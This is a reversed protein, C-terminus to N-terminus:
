TSRPQWEGVTAHYADFRNSTLSQVAGTTIIMSYPSTTLGGAHGASDYWNLVYVGQNTISFTQSLAYQSENGIDVFQQGEEPLPWAGGTDGNFIDGSPGSWGWSTPTGQQFTNNAIAPSEFSGNLLLN